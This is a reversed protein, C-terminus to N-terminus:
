SVAPQGQGQFWVWNPCWSPRAPLQTRSSLAVFDSRVDRRHLLRSLELSGFVELEAVSFNMDWLLWAGRLSWSVEASVHWLYITKHFESVSLRCKGLNTLLLSNQQFDSPTAAAQPSSTKFHLGVFFCRKLLVHPSLNPGPEIYTNFQQKNINIQWTNIFMNSKSKM